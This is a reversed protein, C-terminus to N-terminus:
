RGRGVAPLRREDVTWYRHEGTTFDVEIVRHAVWRTASDYSHSVRVVLHQVDTPPAAVSAVLTAAGTRGTNWGGLEAAITEVGNDDVWYLDVSGTADGASALDIWWDSAQGAVLPSMPYAAVSLDRPPDAQQLRWLHNNAGARLFGSLAPDELVLELEAISATREAETTAQDARVWWDPPAAYVSSSLLVTLIMSM